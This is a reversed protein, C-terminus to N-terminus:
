RTAMKSITVHEFTQTSSGSVAVNTESQFTTHLAFLQTYEM